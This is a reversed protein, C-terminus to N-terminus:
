PLREKVEEVGPIGPCLKSLGSDGVPVWLDEVRATMCLHWTMNKADLRINEIDMERIVAYKHPVFLQRVMAWRAPQAGQASNKAM